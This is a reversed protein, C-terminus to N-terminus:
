FTLNFHFGGHPFSGSFFRPLPFLYVQFNFHHVFRQLFAKKHFFQFREGPGFGQARVQALFSVIIVFGDGFSLWREMGPNASSIDELLLKLFLDMEHLALGSGRSFKTEHAEVERRVLEPLYFNM